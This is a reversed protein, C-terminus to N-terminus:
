LSNIPERDAHTALARTIGHRPLILSSNSIIASKQNFTRSQTSIQLEKLFIMNTPQNKGSSTPQTSSAQPRNHAITIQRIQYIHHRLPTTLNKM